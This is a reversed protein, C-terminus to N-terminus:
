GDGRAAGLARALLAEETALQAAVPEGVDLCHIVLAGGAESDAPLTGPVLSAVTRFLDRAPGPALRTRHTVFGPRLPLAPDLARKAVDFGAVVSQGLFRLAYRALAAASPRAAGPPLLRLSAWAALGATAVGIALDGPAFGALVVWFALLGAVRWAASRKSRRDHPLM